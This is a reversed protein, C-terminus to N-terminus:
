HGVSLQEAKSCSKSCAGVEQLELSRLHAETDYYYDTVEETYYYSSTM